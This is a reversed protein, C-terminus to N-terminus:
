GNVSYSIIIKTIMRPPPMKKILEVAYEFSGALLFVAIDKAEKPLTFPTQSPQLNKGSSLDISEKFFPM